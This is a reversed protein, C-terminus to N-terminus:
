EPDLNGKSQNSEFIMSINNEIISKHKNIDDNSEEPAIKEATSYCKEQRLTIKKLIM